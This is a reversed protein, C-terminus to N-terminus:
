AVRSRLHHGGTVESARSGVSSGTGVVVDASSGPCAGKTQDVFGGFARWTRAGPVTFLELQVAPRGDSLQCLVRATARPVVGFVFRDAGASGVLLDPRPVPWTPERNMGAFGWPKGPGDRWEFELGIGAEGAQWGFWYDGGDRQGRLLPRLNRSPYITDRVRYRLGRGGPKDLRLEEGDIRWRVEGDVVAAFAEEVARRTGGCGMSTRFMRGIHLVDGNIRVAGSYFNCATASFHGEGDFRLVADVEPPPSWTRSPGVVETLQWETGILPQGSRDQRVEAVGESPRGAQSGGGACGVAGALLAVVAAVAWGRM